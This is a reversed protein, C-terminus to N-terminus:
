KLEKLIEYLKLRGFYYLFLNLPHNHLPSMNLWILPTLLQVRNKDLGEKGIFDSLLKQCSLLNDSRLIDVFIGDGNENKSFTFLNKNVIDHNVTLNHNLKALDYYIDGSELLGGFNQRWDLLKYENRTKIINDLVLDGHIQRQEGGSLMDFDINKLLNSIKPVKQGNIIDVRDELKNITMLKDIREKTKDLYFKKCIKKFEGAPVPAKKIWLKKKCWQLFKSFDSTNVVRSYLDGEVFKYRLFNGEGAEIQPVLSKLLKARKIRQDIISEDFYFKIVFKDFIYISEESKDLNSFNDGLKKKAENLSDINGIDIWTKFEKVAFYKGSGIMLNIVKCDNLSPDLPNAHYISELFYWFSKYDKIGVLGIHIYEYEIAGKDNILQVGNKFINFTSYMASGSGKSGGNWNSTPSPIKETVITDSAHFVFPCQLYRKAQLMSYGLSSGEGQFKDVDVFTFKRDPYALRLFDKVQNGFYGLTVVFHINSDYSEVIRSIVPKKGIRILAKNTFKTLEGLRQGLGSATILVKFSPKM